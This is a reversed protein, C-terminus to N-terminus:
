KSGSSGSDGFGSGGGGSSGGSSSSSRLKVQLATIASIIIDRPARQMLKSYFGDQEDVLNQATQSLLLAKYHAAYTGTVTGEIARV